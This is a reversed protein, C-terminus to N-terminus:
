FSMGSIVGTKKICIRSGEIRYAGPATTGNAPVFSQGLPWHLGDDANSSGNSVGSWSAAAEAEQRTTRGVLGGHYVVTTAPNADPTQRYTGTEPYYSVPTGSISTATVGSATTPGAGVGGANSGDIPATINQGAYLNVQPISPFQNGRKRYYVQLIGDTGTSYRYRILFDHPIGLEAPNSGVAWAYNIPSSAGSSAKDGGRMTVLLQAASSLEIDFPPSGGALGATGNSFNQAYFQHLLFWIASSSKTPLGSAFAVPDLMFSLAWWMDTGNGWGQASPTGIGTATMEVRDVSSSDGSGHEGNRSDVRAAWGSNTWPVRIFRIRGAVPVEAHDYDAWHTDSNFASSLPMAYETSLNHGDATFIPGSGHGAWTPLVIGSSDGTVVSGPLQSSTLKSSGDLTAIGSVAGLQSSQLSSDAKGLSTQVATTLDTSPIGGGPKVYKGAVAAIATQTSSDLQTNTVSGAQLQSTGVVNTNLSGDSAHSVSLYANLIDGWSGDDSGPIPLRLPNPLNAM